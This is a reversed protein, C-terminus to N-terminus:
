RTIKRSLFGFGGGWPSTRGHQRTAEIVAKAVFLPNKRDAMADHGTAKNTM